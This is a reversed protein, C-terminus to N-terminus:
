IKRDCFKNEFVSFMASSIYLKDMNHQPLSVITIIQYLKTNHVVLELRTYSNGLLTIVLTRRYANTCKPISISIRHKNEFVMSHKNNCNVNVSILTMNKIGCM